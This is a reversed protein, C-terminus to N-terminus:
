TAVRRGYFIGFPFKTFLQELSFSRGQLQKKSLLEEVLVECPLELQRQVERALFRQVVVLCVRGKLERLFAVVSSEGPLILPQYSGNLFLDPDKQRLELGKRYLTQKISEDKSACLKKLMGWDVPERNDPDVLRYNWVEDGNYLDVVGPLGLRLCIASLSHMKGAQDLKQVLPLFLRQFPGKEDETVLQFLTEKASKEYDLNPHFWSTQEKAERLSKELVKWIRKAFAEQDKKQLGERPWCGLLTQFLMWQDTPLLKGAVGEKKWSELAEEWDPMCESLAALRMRVDESRKTDHTTAALLGYPWREAKRKFFAHFEELSTGFHTPDGGVENLAVFRNYRYFATDELGKAMIPGTLQQFQLMWERASDIEGRLLSRFCTLLSSDLHSLHLSAQEFSEELVKQDIPNLAGQPALYTRYVPFASTLEIIFERIEHRTTDRTQYDQELIRELKLALAEVESAMHETCFLKKAQYLISAFDVEQGVAKHYLDTCLTESEPDIFLGTVLNITEYGVSGEIPWSDPLEEGRELIKEVVTFVPKKERLTQLYRGPDYLGDPHDIRLGQILDDQLLAFIWAHHAELVEPREIAIGVLEHINFFRRYNIEHRARRWYALRYHQKELLAHLKEKSANMEQVFQGKEKPKLPPLTDPDLPLPMQGVHVQLDEGIQIGGTDLEEKYPRGLIPLLLKGQLEPKEPEWEIDFFAAYKSKRGFRLVDQWWANQGNAFGMHNPVIDLLIKMGKAKAMQCFEVWEEQKGLRPNLHLPDTVDYGHEHGAGMIPSSYIGSVHMKELYPLALIGESIPFLSSWQIRYVCSPIESSSFPNM